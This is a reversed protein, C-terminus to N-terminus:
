MASRECHVCLGSPMIPLVGSCLPCVRPQPLPPPVGAPPPPVTHEAAHMASSGPVSPSRDAQSTLQPGSRVPARVRARLASKADALKGELVANARKLVAVKDQAAELQGNHVRQANSLTSKLQAIDAFLSGGRQKAAVVEAAKSKAAELAADRQQELTKCRQRLYRITM